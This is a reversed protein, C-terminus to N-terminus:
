WRSRLAPSRRRCLVTPLPGIECTACRSELVADLDDLAQSVVQALPVPDFAVDTRDLRVYSLLDDLLQRMRESSQVVNGLYRRGVDDLQDARDEILLRSFNTITNLPERLDHSCIYIFQQQALTTRELAQNIQRLRQHTATLESVDRVTAIVLRNEGDALLGVRIDVHVSTRDARGLLVPEEARDGDAGSLGGPVLEEVQRGVFAGPWVRFTEAASANSRVVRLIADPSHEFLLEFQRSAADAKEREALLQISAVEAWQAATRLITVDTIIAFFGQLEEGLRYPVYDALAYAVEGSAKSLTREFRQPEGAL